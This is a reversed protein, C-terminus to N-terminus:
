FGARKDVLNLLPLDHVYRRVNESFVEEVRLWSYQGRGATHPTIVVQDMNWLPHGSPLPEPDTVDLGAGAIQKRSLAEMLDGTNVLKGRSVNIFFAGSRMADFARGDFMGASLRTHPAACVVVDCRGLMELWGGDQVLFLEDALGGLEERYMPRIDAALVRMDMARARRATERGIGGFGVIGMTMDRLEYMPETPQWRGQQGFVAQEAIRRTLAFLLGFVHEAIAPAYCGKANTLLVPSEIFADTLYHEVGASPSQIWRLKGAKPWEDTRLSGMLVDAEPILAARDPEAVGHLFRLQPSISRIKGAYEGSLEPLSIVTLPLRPATDSQVPVGPSGLAATVPLGYALM